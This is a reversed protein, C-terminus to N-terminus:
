FCILDEEEAKQTDAQKKMQNRDERLQLRRLLQHSSSNFCADHAVEAWAVADVDTDDGFLSHVVDSRVLLGLVFVDPICTDTHNRCLLKFNPSVDLFM